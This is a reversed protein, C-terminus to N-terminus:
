ETLLQRDIKYEGLKVWTRSGHKAFIDVKADIFERNRLMQARPETGTYGLGSRLVIDRGAAGAALGGRGIASVFHEGWAETEGVRRFIANIQVNSVPESSVNRLKLSVSPVLKNKGDQMIGADYWGTNVDTVQLVKEVEINQACGATVALIVLLAAPKM